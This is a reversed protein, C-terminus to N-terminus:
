CGLVFLFLFEESDSHVIENLKLLRKPLMKEFWFQIQYEKLVNYFKLTRDDTPRQPFTSLNHDYSELIIKDGSCDVLM